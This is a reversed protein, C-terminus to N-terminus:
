PREVREIARMLEDESSAGRLVAAVKGAGDIIVTHPITTVQYASSASGDDLVIPMTLGLRAAAAQATAANGETDVAVLRTTHPPRQLAQAVREVGPLEAICPGCWPAWFALVVPHGREDALRFRDGSLLPGALAPALSGRPTPASVGSRRLQVIRLAFMLGLALLIARGVWRNM